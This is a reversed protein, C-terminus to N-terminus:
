LIDVIQILYELHGYFICILMKWDVYLGGFNLLIPIKPKFLFWRAVRSAETQCRCSQKRDNTVFAQNTIWNCVAPAPDKASLPPLFVLIEVVVKKENGQDGSWKKGGPPTPPCFAAFFQSISDSVL